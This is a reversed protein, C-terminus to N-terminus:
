CGPRHAVVMPPQGLHKLLRWGTENFFAKRGLGFIEASAMDAVDLTPLSASGRLGRLHKVDGHKKDNQGRLKVGRHCM